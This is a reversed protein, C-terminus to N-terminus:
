QPRDNALDISLEPTDGSAASAKDPFRRGVLRIGQDDGVGREALLDEAVQDGVGDLVGRAPAMDPDLSPGPRIVPAHRDNVIPRSNGSIREIPDKLWEEAKRAVLMRAISPLPKPRDMQRSNVSRSPPVITRSEVWPAPVVTFTWKGREERRVSDQYVASDRRGVLQRVRLSDQRADTM